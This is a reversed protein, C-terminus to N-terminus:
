LKIKEDQDRMFMVNELGIKRKMNKRMTWRILIFPYVANGRNVVSGSYGPIDTLMVTKSRGFRKMGITVQWEKRFQYGLTIGISPTRAKTVSVPTYTRNEYSATLTYDVHWIKGFMMMQINYHKKAGMAQFYDFAYQYKLSIRTGKKYYSANATLKLMSTHGLNEITSHYIGEPTTYASTEPTDTSRNYEGSLFSNFGNKGYSLTLEASQVVSPRLHPNGSSYVLSDSSTNYPNMSSIEPPCINHTYKVSLNMCDTLDKDASVSLRPKHYRGNTGGSKMWVFDYGASIQYNIKALVGSLGLYVYECFRDHLYTGSAANGDEMRYRSFTTVNGVNAEAGRINFTYDLKEGFTHTKVEIANQGHWKREAFNQIMCNDTRSNNMTGWLTADLTNNRNKKYFYLNGSLIDSKYKAFGSSTYAGYEGTDLIGDGSSSSHEKSKEGVVYFALYTDEAPKAKLMMEYSLSRSCSKTTTTETRRYSSTEAELDMYTRNDHGGDIYFKGGFSYKPSGTEFQTDFFQWYAPIDDRASEQLYLYPPYRKKTHINLIKEGGDFMYKAGAVDVIEVSEIRDPSIPAIGSNVRMGDVLIVLSKGDQSTVSQSTRNSVLEPIEMLATFPDGSAVAEKSLYYIHGRATRVAPRKASVVVSDLEINGERLVFDRETDAGIDIKVEDSEMGVCSASIEYEGSPINRIQYEGKVNTSSYGCVAGGKFVTVSAGELTNGGTEAVRGKLTHQSYICSPKLSLCLFLLLLQRIYATKGM